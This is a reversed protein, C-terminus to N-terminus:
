SFRIGIGLEFFFVDNFEDSPLWFDWRFSLALGLDDSLQLGDARFDVGFGSLTSGQGKFDVITAPRYVLAARYNWTLDNIHYGIGFGWDSFTLRDDEQRIKSELNDIFGSAGSFIGSSAEIRRFRHANMWRTDLFFELSEWRLSAQTGIDWTLQDVAFKAPMDQEGGITALKFLGHSSYTTFGYGLGLSPRLGFSFSNDIKYELLSEFRMSAYNMGPIFKPMFSDDFGKIATANIYRPAYTIFYSSAWEGPLAERYRNTESTHERTLPSDQAVLSPAILLLVCILTLSKM